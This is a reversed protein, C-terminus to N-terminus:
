NLRMISQATLTAPLPLGLYPLITRHALSANIRVYQGPPNGDACSSGCVAEAVGGPQACGCFQSPAPSAAIGETGTANVVAASIGPADWGYKLAYLM